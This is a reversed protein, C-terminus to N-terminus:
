LYSIEVRGLPYKKIFDNLSIQCSLLTKNVSCKQCIGVGDCSSAITIGSERLFNMLSLENSINNSIPIIKIIKLSANGFVIIKKKSLSKLTCVM